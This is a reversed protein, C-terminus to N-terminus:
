TKKKQKKGKDSVDTASSYSFSSTPVKIRSSNNIAVFFTIEQAESGDRRWRETPKFTPSTIEICGKTVVDDVM